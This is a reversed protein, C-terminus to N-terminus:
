WEEACCDPPEIWFYKRAEQGDGSRVIFTGPAGGCTRWSLEYVAGGRTPGGIQQDLDDRYYTYWGNGGQAWVGIKAAYREETDCSADHTFVNLILPAYGVVEIHLPYSKEHGDPMVVKLSFTHTYDPCVKESSHGPRGKGDLFVAKVGDVDWYLVTCEGGAIRTRDARFQPDPV